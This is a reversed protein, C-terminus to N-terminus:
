SDPEAVGECTQPLPQWVEDAPNAHCILTLTKSREEEMITELRHYAAQFGPDNWWATLSPERFFALDRLGLDIAADLEELMRERDNEMGSVLAASRMMYSEHIGAEERLRVDNRLLALIESAGDRDGVAIRGWALRATPTTSLDWPEIIIAGDVTELLEEYLVQAAPLDGSLHLVDAMQTKLLNDGTNEEMLQRSKELADGWRQQAVDVRWSAESSMLRAEEYLGLAVFISTLRSRTFANQSDLSLGKLYWGVSDALAGRYDSDILAHALYSGGLNQVALRNAVERAEEFRHYRALAYAYNVQGVISLPDVSMMHDMVRVAEPWRGSNILSLYLWNIVDVYSPNLELAKKAYTIAKSYNYNTMDILSRAGYAEALDPDLEFAREVHPMARSLVEEFSLTGYSGGGAKLLANAIALQAHAPAYSEDYELAKELAVVAQELGERSRGNILQRGKLYLEYAQASAAAPISPLDIRGGSDLSLEVQLADGIAASIEDQIAFIDDLERDWSNSWLHFGNEAEILQATIRLRNGSKRVSGELVHNVRLRRAIDAVDQNQGKFQFASTRAAVRLGPFRALVNLLEESIGDSFYEQQPDASMNVFPLVAISVESSAPVSEEVTTEPAQKSAYDDPGPMLRDLAVLALVVVLLAITLVDLKKATHHTISRSRDIEKEKKLGDPTLEFVWSFVLAPIFGIALLLLVLKPAWGPLELMPAVVDVVQLILWSLVLYAIAVRFVNRRKLEEFLGM